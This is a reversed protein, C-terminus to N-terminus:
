KLGAADLQVSFMIQLKCERKVSSTQTASIMSHDTLTNNFANTAQLNNVIYNTINIKFEM